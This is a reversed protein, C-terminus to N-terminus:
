VVFHQATSDSFLVSINRINPMEQKTVTTNEIREKQSSTQPFGQVKSVSFATHFDQMHSGPHFINAYNLILARLWLPCEVPLHLHLLQTVQQVYLTKSFSLITRYLRSQCDACEFTALLPSCHKCITRNTHCESDMCSNAIQQSPACKGCLLFPHMCSSANKTSCRWGHKRLTTERCYACYFYCQICAQLDTQYHNPFHAVRKCGMQHCHTCELLDKKACDICLVGCEGYQTRLCNRKAPKSWQRRPICMKCLLLPKTQRNVLIDKEFILNSCSSGSCCIAKKMEDCNGCQRSDCLTCSYFPVGCQCAASAQEM